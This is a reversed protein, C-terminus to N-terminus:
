GKGLMSFEVGRPRDPSVSLFLSPARNWGPRAAAELGQQGLRQNRFGARAPEGNRATEAMRQILPMYTAYTHPMHSAHTHTHAHCTHPMHTACPHRVLPMHAAHPRCIPPMHSPMHTPM